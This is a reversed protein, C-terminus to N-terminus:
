VLDESLLKSREMVKEVLDVTAKSYFGGFKLSRQSLNPSLYRVTKTKLLKVQEFNQKSPGIGIKM